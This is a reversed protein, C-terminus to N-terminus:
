VVYFFAALAAVLRRVIDHPQISVTMATKVEGSVMGAVESNAEEYIIQAVM